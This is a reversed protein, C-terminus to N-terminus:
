GDESMHKGGRMGLYAPQTARGGALGSAGVDSDHHANETLANILPPVRWAACAAIRSVAQLLMNACVCANLARCCRRQDRNRSSHQPTSVRKISLLSIRALRATCVMYSSWNIHHRPFSTLSSGACVRRAMSYFTARRISVGRALAPDSVGHRARWGRAFIGGAAASRSRGNGGHLWRAMIRLYCAIYSAVDMGQAAAAISVRTVVAPMRRWAGGNLWVRWCKEGARM